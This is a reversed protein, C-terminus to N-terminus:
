GKNVVKNMANVLETYDKTFQQSISALAGGMEKMVKEDESVATLLYKHM